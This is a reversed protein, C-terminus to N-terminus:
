SPDVKSYAAYDDYFFAVFLGLCKIDPHEAQAKKFGDFDFASQMADSPHAPLTTLPVTIQQVGSPDRLVATSCFSGGDGHERCPSVTFTRLLSDVPIVMRISWDLVLEGDVSDYELDLDSAHIYPTIQCVLDGVTGSADESRFVSMVRGMRCVGSHTFYVTDGLEFQVGDSRSFELYTFLPHGGWLEGHWLESSTPGWRPEFVMQQFNGPFMLLRRIVDSLLYYPFLAIRQGSPVRAVHLKLMPLAARVRGSLEPWTPWHLKELYHSFSAQVIRRIGLYARKTVGHTLVWFMLMFETLNHWPDWDTAEAHDAQPVMVIPDCVARLQSLQACYEADTGGPNAEIWAYSADVANQVTVRGMSDIATVLWSSQIMTCYAWLDSLGDGSEDGEDNGSDSDDPFGAPDIIDKFYSKM